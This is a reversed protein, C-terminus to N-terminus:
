RSAWILKRLRVGGRLAPAGNVWYSTRFGDQLATLCRASSGRQDEVVENGEGWSWCLGFVFGGRRGVPSVTFVWLKDRPWKAVHVVGLFMFRAEHMHFARTRVLLASRPHSGHTPSPLIIGTTRGGCPISGPISLSSMCSQIREVGMIKVALGLLFFTCWNVINLCWVQSIENWGWNRGSFM